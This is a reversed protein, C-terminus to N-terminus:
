MCIYSQVIHVMLGRQHSDLKCKLFNVFVIIYSVFDFWLRFVIKKDKSSYSELSIQKRIQDGQQKSTNKLQAVEFGMAM